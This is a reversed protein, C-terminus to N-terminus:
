RPRLVGRRYRTRLVHVRSPALTEDGLFCVIRGNRPGRTRPSSRGVEGREGQGPQRGVESARREGGGDGISPPRLGGVLVSSVSSWRPARMRWTTGTTGFSGFRLARSSHGRNSEGVSRTVKEPAVGVVGGHDLRGDPRWWGDPQWWCRSLQTRRSRKAPSSSRRVRRPSRYRGRRRRLRLPNIRNIRNIRDGSPVRRVPRVVTATAVALHDLDLRPGATASRTRLGSSSPSERPPVHETEHHATSPPANAPQEFTRFSPSSTPTTILRVARFM